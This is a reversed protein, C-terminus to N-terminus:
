PKTCIVYYISIYASLTVSKKSNLYTIVSKQWDICKDYNFKSPTQADIDRKSKAYHIMADDMLQRM